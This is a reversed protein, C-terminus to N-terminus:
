LSKVFDDIKIKLNKNIFLRNQLKSKIKSVSSETRGLLAAIDRNSLCGLKILMCVRFDQRSVNCASMLHSKFSPIVDLMTKELDEWDKEGLIESNKLKSCIGLFIPAEALRNQVFTDRQLISDVRASRMELLHKQYQAEKLQIKSTHLKEQLDRIIRANKEEIALRFSKYRAAKVKGKRYMVLCFCIVFVVTGVVVLVLLGIIIRHIRRESVLRENEKKYDNYKYITNMRAVAESAKVLQCSDKLTKYTHLYDLAKRKDGQLISVTLLVQAAQTREYVNGEEYKYSAYYSASDCKNQGLYVLSILSYLPIQSLKKIRDKNPLLCAAARSYDGNNVYHTAMAGLCQIELDKDGLQKALLYSRKFYTLSETGQEKEEYCYAVKQLCWAMMATDKRQKELEYSKLFLPIADDYLYQYYFLLGKQFALISRFALDTTDPLAQEAKQYYDLAIPIDNLDRCVCGMYYYAQPLLRRDGGREYHSLVALMEPKTAASHPVYTKDSAKVRLLRYYWQAEEDFASVTDHLRDLLSVASDPRVDCLSDAVVLAQPYDFRRNCSSVAVLVVTLLLCVLQKM